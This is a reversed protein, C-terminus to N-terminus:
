DSAFKLAQVLWDAQQDVAFFKVFEKARWWTLQRQAYQKEATQWQEVAEEKSISGASLQSLQEFGLTTKVQECLRDGYTQQLNEIEQLVGHKLRQSIRAEIKKVIFDLSATLGIYTQQFDSHPIEDTIPAVQSVEIARILRRPNNKDSNNMNEFKKANLQLLMAQLEELSMEQALARFEENPPVHLTPDPNFLHQHYLGTGGVIILARHDTRAAEIIPLAYEQFQAVSWDEDPKVISIGFLRVDGKQFFRFASVSLDKETEFGEPIDAGSLIELGQYVQRSDASIIDVGSYKK